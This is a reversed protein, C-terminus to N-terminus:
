YDLNLAHCTLEIFFFYFKRTALLTPTKILQLVSLDCVEEETEYTVFGFGKSKNGDKIVVCDTLTGYQSFYTNLDEDTTEFSIGGIFLKRLQEEETGKYQFCLVLM